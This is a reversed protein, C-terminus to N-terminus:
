SLRHVAKWCPGPRVSLRGIVVQRFRMRNESVKRPVRGNTGRRFTLALAACFGLRQPIRMYLILIAKKGEGGWPVNGHFM